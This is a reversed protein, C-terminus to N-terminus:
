DKGGLQLGEEILGAGLQIDDVANREVYVSIECNMMFLEGFGHGSIGFRIQYVATLLLDIESDFGFLAARGVCLREQELGVHPVGALYQVIERHRYIDVVLM